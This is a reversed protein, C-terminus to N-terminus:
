YCGCKESRLALKVPPRLDAQKVRRSVVGFSDSSDHCILLSAATGVLADQITGTTVREYVGKQYGKTVM